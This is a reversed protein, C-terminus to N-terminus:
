GVSLIWFRVAPVTTEKFGHKSDPRSDTAPAFAVGLNKEGMTIDILLRAIHFPIEDQAVVGLSSKPIKYAGARWRM